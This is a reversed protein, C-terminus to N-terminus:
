LCAEVFKEINFLPNTSKLADAFDNAISERLNNNGDLKLEKIVKAILIFDKRSM